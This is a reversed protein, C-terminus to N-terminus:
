YGAPVPSREELRQSWVLESAWGAEKVTTVPTKERDYMSAPPHRQGSVGM